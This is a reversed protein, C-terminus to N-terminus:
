SRSTCYRLKMKLQNWFLEQGVLDEPWKLVEKYCLLQRLWLTKKRDPIEGIQVLILVDANDTVIRMRAFHLQYHCWGGDMFNASLVAITKRSQQIGHCLPMSFIIGQQFTVEKKLVFGFGNQDM